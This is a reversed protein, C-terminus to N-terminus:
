RWRTRTGPMPVMQPPSEPQSPFSPPPAPALSPASVMPAVFRVTQLLAEFVAQTADADNALAAIALVTIRTDGEGAPEVLVTTQDVTEENRTFCFRQLVAPRGAVVRDECQLLDLGQLEKAARALRKDAHTRLTEGPLM